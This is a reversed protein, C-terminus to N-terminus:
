VGILLLNDGPYTLPWLFIRAPKRHPHSDLLWQLLQPIKQLLMEWIKYVGDWEHTLITISVITQYIKRASLKIVLKIAQDQGFHYPLFYLFNELTKGRVFPQPIKYKARTKHTPKLKLLNPTKPQHFELM